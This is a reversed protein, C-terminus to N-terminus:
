NNKKHYIYKPLVTETKNNNNTKNEKKPTAIVNEKKVPKVVDPKKALPVSAPKKPEKKASDVHAVLKVKGQNLNSDAMSRAWNMNLVAKDVPGLWPLAPSAVVQDKFRLDIVDYKDWGIRNSIKCYFAYLNTLKNDMGSTDGLLIRQNGLVPYLVFCLDSDVSCHSIQSSWFSHAQIKNVVYIMEWKLANRTSDTKFVPVNTVVPAYHVYDSSLPLVKRSSDIYYSNGLVDFVRAIPTRQMVSVHMTHNNDVYVQADKVWATNNMMEEMKRADIQKLLLNEMSDTEKGNLIQLVKAEDLFHIQDENIIDIEVKRIKQEDSLRSASSLATVCCVMLVLSLIARMVKRVSIKRKKQTM